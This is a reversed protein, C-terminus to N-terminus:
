FRMGLEIFIERPNDVFASMDSVTGTATGTGTGGTFPIDNAATVVLEDTLNRGILALHWKDEPANYRIAADVKSYSDQVGDPRLTDTFNYDDMFTVDGIFSISGSTGGLQHEYTFGARASLEPAKNPTKGSYDQSSFAGTSTNVDFRCGQAITQGGYCQGIFDKYEAKNYAVAGRLSLNENVVWNFDAELGQTELKGANDAILSISVPDFVQVQLDTYEYFYATANFSVAGDMLISRVGLEYGEATESDFQGTAVAGAPNAAAAAGLAQSINFGGTKFGEKYSGYYTLDTSPKYRVTIQPSVDDDSYSDSIAIGGPFAAAVGPNAALSRQYSDREEDSWRLGASIEIQDTAEYVAEAFVSMSDSEFGNDRKFTVPTFGPIIFPLIYADTNFEFEGNSYFAGFMFNLPSEYKTQFRIEQTFQDYDAYQTFNGPYSEGSVNNADEQTFSYYSTIASIDMSSMTYNTNLVMYESEFDAYMEGTRAYRYNNTAIETSLRASDAVGNIVCDTAPSAPVGPAAPNFVSPQPATRGGGCLRELSDTPGGDEFTSAAVKLRFSLNDSAQIDLTGRIGFAEAGGRDAGNPSRTYGMSAGTLANFLPSPYSASASNTFAGDSDSVRVALRGQVADSLAGSIFGSAYFEKAESGYGTTFGSEFEDTPNKSEISILGGTTNKGFFLSQPGKLVDVRQIDFQPLSIERGRQMPVGDIIFSISQDFGASLATSGVGRLFISASSGSAAKGAVLGPVQTSLDSIDAVQYDAMAEGSLATIAVPADVLREDRRRATVTIEEVLYDAKKGASGGGVSQAGAPSPLTAMLAIAVASTVGAMLHRRYKHNSLLKHAM